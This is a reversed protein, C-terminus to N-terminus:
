QGDACLHFCGAREAPHQCESPRSPCPMVHQAFSVCSGSEIGIRGAILGPRDFVFRLQIDMDEGGEAVFCLIVRDRTMQLGRLSPSIEELVISEIYPRSLWVLVRREGAGPISLRLASEGGYRGVPEYDFTFDDLGMRRVPPRTATDRRPPLSISAHVTRMTSRDEEIAQKAAESRGVRKSGSFEFQGWSSEV